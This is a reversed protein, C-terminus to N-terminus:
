RPVFCCLRRVATVIALYVARPLQEAAATAAADELAAVSAVPDLSLLVFQGFDSRLPTSLPWDDLTPNERTQMSLTPRDPPPTLNPLFLRHRSCAEIAPESCRRAIRLEHWQLKDGLGKRCTADSRQEERVRPRTIYEQDLESPPKLNSQM